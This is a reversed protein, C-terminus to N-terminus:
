LELRLGLGFRRGVPDFLSENTPMSGGFGWDPVAPPDRDLLNVVYGFLTLQPLTRPRWDARVSTYTVGGVTNDDITIDSQARYVGSSIARQHLSLELADRRYAISLNAQWRPAGGFLGTQTVRDTRGGADDTTSIELAVNGLLRVALSEEGGLLRVPGRWGAELDIGRTRAETLNLVRNDVRDIQGTDPNRSILACRDAAGDRCQDIIAQAGLTGIVDRVRIDFYDAAVAFGQAWSPRYVVGATITDGREPGIAPNAGRVAVVAYSPAGPVLNDRITVGSSSVDFREALSGARVDRSRTARLRLDPGLRADVGTKWAVVGGSGSFHAHRVAANASLVPDGHADAVLPLAGEAFAERVAYHGSVATEVTREFLAANNVYSAPLGRYGQEAAPPVRLGQLETPLRRPGSAVAERRWALGGAVRLDGGRWSWPSGTVALEAVHETVTQLQSARGETVWRRADPSVSGEGFLNVPVCGDDPFTLTSRCVARGTGPDVVSDIARYIRDLRLVDFYHIENRNRGYQYHGGITWDGMSWDVGATTSLLSSRNRVRPTGLDGSSVRGLSFSGIDLSVMRSRLDEPLFANDDYITAAWPGWLSPPDKAFENVSTAALGQLFLELGPRLTTGLRAFGATRRQDPLIWVLDEAPDVGDGGAQTAGTRLRGPVFPDARGGRLFETGALPGSTILGGYTYGTAHVDDAIIEDPGGPGPNTIAARSRFWSRSGYGRIGKARMGEFSAVLHTGDGLPTGWTLEWAATRNDSEGSVRGQAEVRLGEFTTDLLLNAVGSVADSGYAASAGGTVVEVRRILARPLLALDITGFRTSPVVRRGDLLTLTRISGIGRLNLFSAGAAASSGFSQTEPTDNNLFYPLQVLADVLATPGFLRLETGSITTVPTMATMGDPELRSGTVTVEDLGAPAEIGIAATGGARRAAPPALSIVWAGNPDRRHVLGSGRLLRELAVEPELRGRVARTRRDVAIEYPFVLAIGAQRAFTGLSRAAPGCPIDFSVPEARATAHACALVAAVVLGM